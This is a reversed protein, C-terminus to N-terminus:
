KASIEAYFYVKTGDWAPSLMLFRYISIDSNDEFLVQNTSTDLDYVCLNNNPSVYFFRNANRSLRGLPSVYQFIELPLECHSLNSLNFCRAFSNTNYEAWRIVFQKDDSLAFMTNPIGGMGNDDVVSHESGDLRSKRLGLGEFYLFEENELYIGNAVRLVENPKPVLVPVLANLDMYYMYESDKTPEGYGHSSYTLYNGQDSLIPNRLNRVTENTLKTLQYDPYTLLYINKNAAFYLKSGESSQTLRSHRDTLTINDPTIQVPNIVDTDSIWLKEGYFIIKDDKTMYIDGFGTTGFSEDVKKIKRFGTGDANISCLWNEPRPSSPETLCSNLIFLFGVLLALYVIRKM